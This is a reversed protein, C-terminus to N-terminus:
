IGLVAVAFNQVVLHLGTFFSRAQRSPGGASSNPGAIADTMESIFISACASRRAYEASRLTPVGLWHVNDSQSRGQRREERMDEDGEIGVM